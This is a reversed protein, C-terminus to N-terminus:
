GANGLTKLRQIVFSATRSGRGPPHLLLPLSDEPLVSQFPVRHNSSSVVDAERGRNIVTKILELKKTM